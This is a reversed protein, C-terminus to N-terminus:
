AKNIITNVKIKIKNCGHNIEFVYYNFSLYLKWKFYVYVKEKKVPTM